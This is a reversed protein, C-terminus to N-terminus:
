DRNHDQGAFNEQAERQFRRWVLYGGAAAVLGLVILVDAADAGPLTKPRYSGHVPEAGELRLAPLDASAGSLSISQSGSEYRGSLSSPPIFAERADRHEVTAPPPAAGQAKPDAPSPTAM